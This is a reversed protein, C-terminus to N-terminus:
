TPCIGWKQQYLAYCYHSLTFAFTENLFPGKAQLTNFRCGRRSPTMGSNGDAAVKPLETFEDAATSGGAARCHSRQQSSYMEM